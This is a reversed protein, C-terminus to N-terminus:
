CEKGVEEKFLKFDVNDDELLKFDLSINLAKTYTLFEREITSKPKESGIILAKARYEDQTCYFVFNTKDTNQITIKLAAFLPAFKNNPSADLPGVYLNDGVKVHVPKQRGIGTTTYYVPTAEEQPKYATPEPTEAVQEIEQQKEAQTNCYCPTSHENEKPADNGKEEEKPLEEVNKGNETIEMVAKFCVRGDEIVVKGNKNDRPKVTGEKIKQKINYIVDIMEETTPKLTISIKYNTVYEIALRKIDNTNDKPQATGVAGGQLYYNYPNAYPNNMCDKAYVSVSIFEPTETQGNKPVFCAIGEATIVVDGTKNTRFPIRENWIREQLDSIINTMQYRRTYVQIAINFHLIMRRVIRMQANTTLKDFDIRSSLNRLYDNYVEYGNVMKSDAAKYDYRSM